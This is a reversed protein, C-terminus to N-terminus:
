TNPQAGIAVERTSGHPGTAEGDGEADVEARLEEMFQWLEDGARMSLESPNFPRFVGHRYLFRLDRSFQAHHGPARIRDRISGAGSFPDLEDDPFGERLARRYSAPVISGIEDWYFLAERLWAGSPIGITPYYLITRRIPESRTAEEM